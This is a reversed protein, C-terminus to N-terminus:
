ETVQEVGGLKLFLKLFQAQLVTFVLGCVVAVISYTAAGFLLVAINIVMMTTAIDFRANRKNLIMAITDFSVATAKASICFYYGAAVLIAAIPTALIPTGLLTPVPLEYDMWHFLNFLAMYCVSSFLAGVFYSKGLFIYSIIILLITLVDVWLAVSWPTWAQMVLSFSTVGGNLIIKPVTIFAYAGTLLINGIFIRLFRLWREEDEQVPLLLRKWLTPQSQKKVSDRMLGSAM